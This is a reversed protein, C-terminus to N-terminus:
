GWRVMEQDLITGKAMEGSEGNWGFNLFFFQGWKRNKSVSYWM